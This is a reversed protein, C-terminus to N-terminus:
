QDTAKDLRVLYLNCKLFLGAVLERAALLDSIRNDSAEHQGNISTGLWVNSLKSVDREPWMRVINEPLKTLILWDLNPTAYILAFLRARVDDLTMSRSGFPIRGECEMWDGDPNIALVDGQRNTLVGTWYEFIDPLSWCFVRPRIHDMEAARNRKVPERWMAESAVIRTDGQPLGRWPSFTLDCCGIESQSVM